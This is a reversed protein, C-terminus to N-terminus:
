ATFPSDIAPADNYSDQGIIEMVLVDLFTEIINTTKANRHSILNQIM